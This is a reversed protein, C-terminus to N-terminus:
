LLQQLKEKLKANQPNVQLAKEYNEKALRPDGTKVYADGLQEWVDASEPHAQANFQFVAIAEKGKNESLLDTGLQQILGEFFSYSYIKQHKDKVERYWSVASELGGSEIKQQLERIGLKTANAEHSVAAFTKVAFLAPLDHSKRGKKLEERLDFEYAEEFNHFNYVRVRLNKLDGIYSYITPYSWEKHTASLVARMAALSAENKNLIVREAINYRDDSVKGAVMNWQPINTSVQYFGQRRSIRDSGDAWEVVISAGRADAIVFKGGGLFVSYKRFFAIADDVTACHALIHDNISVISDDFLPKGPDPQWGTPPLANADLFLGQDNIGGQAFGFDRGFGFCVRGYEGAAAPYFWMKTQPDTWDENSGILVQGGKAMTVITCAPLDQVPPVAMALMVIIAKLPLGSAMAAIKKRIKNM